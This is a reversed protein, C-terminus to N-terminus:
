ITDDERYRDAQAAYCVMGFCLLKYCFLVFVPQNDRVLRYTPHITRRTQAPRVRIHLAEAPIDPVAPIALIERSM